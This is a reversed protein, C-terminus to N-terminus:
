FALQDSEGSTKVGALSQMTFEVCACSCGDYGHGVDELKSSEVCGLGSWVM